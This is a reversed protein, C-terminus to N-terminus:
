SKQEKSKKVRQNDLLKESPFIVELNGILVNYSNNRRIPIEKVVLFNDTKLKEIYFDIEEEFYSKLEKREILM